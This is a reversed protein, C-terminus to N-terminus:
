RGGRNRRHRRKRKPLVLRRAEETGDPGGVAVAQAPLPLPSVSPGLSYQRMTIARADKHAPGSALVAAIHRQAKGPRSAFMVDCATCLELRQGRDDTKADVRAGQHQQFRERVLATHEAVRPTFPAVFSCASCKVVVKRLYFQHVLSAPLPSSWGQDVNDWLRMTRKDSVLKVVGPMTDNHVGSARQYEAESMEREVGTPDIIRVM